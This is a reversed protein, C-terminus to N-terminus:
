PLAGAARACLVVAAAWGGAVVDDIVIGWGRPLREAVNAPYPKTVDFLRFLLVALVIGAVSKPPAAALAVLVGAVEDVVVIQPDHSASGDAVIGAAWVGVLTLAAAAALVALPGGDRVAFYVPLAAITGVTGPWVPSFGCGFWTAIIWALKKM